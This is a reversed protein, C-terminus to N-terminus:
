NSSTLKTRLFSSEEIFQGTVHSFNLFGHRTNEFLIKVLVTSLRSWKSEIIPFFFFTVHRSVKEFRRRYINFIVFLIRDSIIFEVSGTCFIIRSVFFVSTILKTMECVIHLNFINSFFNVLISFQACRYYVRYARWPIYDVVCFVSSYNIKVSPTYIPFISIFIVSM